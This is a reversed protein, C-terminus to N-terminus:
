VTVRMVCNYRGRIENTRKRSGEGQWPRTWLIRSPPSVSWGVREKEFEEVGEIEKEGWTRRHREKAQLPAGPTNGRFIEVAVKGYALKLANNAFYLVHKKFNSKTILFYDSILNGV